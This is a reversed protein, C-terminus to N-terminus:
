VSRSWWWVQEEAEMTVGGAEESRGTERTILINDSFQAGKSFESDEGWRLIRWKIKDAFDEKGHWTGYEWSGLSLVHADKLLPM